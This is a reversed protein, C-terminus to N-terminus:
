VKTLKSFTLKCVEHIEPVTPTERVPLHIYDSESLNPEFHEFLVIDSDIKSKICSGILGM